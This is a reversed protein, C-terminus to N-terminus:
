DYYLSAFDFYDCRLSIRYCNISTFDFFNRSLYRTTITANGDIFLRPNCGSYDVTVTKGFYPVGKKLLKVTSMEELRFHLTCIKSDIVRLSDGSDM